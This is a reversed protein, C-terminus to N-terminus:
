LLENSLDTNIDSKLLKNDHRNWILNLSKKECNSMKFAGRACIYSKIDKTYKLFVYYLSIKNVNKCKICQFHM